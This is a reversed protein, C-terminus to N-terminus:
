NAEPLTSVADTLDQYSPAGCSESGSPAQIACKAPVEILACVNM